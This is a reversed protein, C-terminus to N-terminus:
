LDDSDLFEVLQYQPTQMTLRTLRILNENSNVDKIRFERLRSYLRGPLVILPGRGLRPKPPLLLAPTFQDHPHTITPLVEIPEMQDSLHEVGFELSVAEGHIMFWRIITLTGQRQHAEKESWCMALEGIRIIQGQPDGQLLWGNISSNFQRMPIPTTGPKKGEIIQGPHWNHERLLHHICSLQTQLWVRENTDIRLQRRRNPQSWEVLLTRLWRMEDNFSTGNREMSNLRQQLEEQILQIDIVRWNASQDPPNRLFRPPSDTGLEFHYAGHAPPTIVSIPGFRVWSERKLVINRLWDFANFNLRDSPLMALLLIQRYMSILSVKERSLKDQWSLSSILNFLEHCTQWVGGPAQVHYQAGWNILQRACMLATSALEIKNQERDLLTRKNLRGILCICFGIFLEHLLSVVQTVAMRGNRYSIVEPQELEMRLPMLVREFANLYMEMLRQRVGVDLPIRNTTHLANTLAETCSIAQAMPLSNLWKLVRDPHTDVTTPDADLKPLTIPPHPLM